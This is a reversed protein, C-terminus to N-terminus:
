EWLISATVEQFEEFGMFFNDYANEEEEGDDKNETVVDVTKNNREIELTTATQSISSAEVKFRKARKSSSSSANLNLVKPVINISKPLKNKASNNFLALSRRYTPPDHNHQGSYSVFLYNENKPSKEIIKKAQCFRSTSCKFYNRPFPSGKISKQGCKRWAWKDNTFEEQLVEYIVRTSQNKRKCTEILPTKRPMSLNPYVQDQMVFQQQLDFSKQSTTSTTAVCTTM